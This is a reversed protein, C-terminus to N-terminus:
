PTNTGRSGIALHELALEARVRLAAATEELILLDAQLPASEGDKLKGAALLAFVHGDFLRLSSDIKGLPSGVLVNLTKLWFLALVIAACTQVVEDSPLIPAISGVSKIWGEQQIIAFQMLLPEYLSPPLLDLSSLIKLITVWAKHQAHASEPFNRMLEKDQDDFRLLSSLDDISNSQSLLSVDSREKMDLEYKSGTYRGMETFTLQKHKDIHLTPVSSYLAFYFMARIEFFKTDLKGENKTSFTDLVLPNWYFKDKLLGLVCPSITSTRHLDWIQTGVSSSKSPEELPSCDLLPTSDASSTALSGNTSHSCTAPRNLSYANIAIGLADDYAKAVKAVRFTSKLDVEPTKSGRLVGLANSIRAAASSCHRAKSFTLALTGDVFDNGCVVSLHPLLKAPIKLCDLVKAPTFLQFQLDVSKELKVPVFQPPYAPSYNLSSLLAVPVGFIFFDSDSTLVATNPTEKCKLAVLKDAEGSSVTVEVFRERLCAILIDRYPSVSAPDSRGNIEGATSASTIVEKGNFNRLTNNIVQLAKARTSRREQRTASKKAEFIGDFIVCELRLNFLAIWDLFERVEERFVELYWFCPLRQSAVSCLPDTNLNAKEELLHSDFLFILKVCCVRCKYRLYHCLALGDVVLRQEFPKHTPSTVQELRISEYAGSGVLYQTLGSVGM